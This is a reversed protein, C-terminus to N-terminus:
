SGSYMQWLSQGILYLSLFASLGCMIYTNRSAVKWARFYTDRQRELINLLSNRAALKDNLLQIEERQVKDKNNLTLVESDLFIVRNNLSSKVEIGEDVQKSLQVKEATLSAVTKELSGIKSYYRNNLEVYNEINHQADGLYQELSKIRNSYAENLQVSNDYKDTLQKIQKLLQKNGLKKEM